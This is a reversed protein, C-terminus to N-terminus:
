APGDFAVFDVELYDAVDVDWRDRVFAVHDPHASYADYTARDAFEMTVGFQYSNKPSVERVVELEEVGEIAALARLASFFRQAEPSGGDHRLTFVVSHRLRPGSLSTM